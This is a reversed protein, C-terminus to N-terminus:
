KTSEDGAATGHTPGAPRPIRSRSGAFYRRAQERLSLSLFAPRAQCGGGGEDRHRETPGRHRGRPFSPLFSRFCGPPPEGSSARSGKRAPELVQPTPTGLLWHPLSKKSRKKKTFKKEKQHLTLSSISLTKALVVRRRPQTARARQDKLLQYHILIMLDTRTKGSWFDLPGPEWPSSWIGHHSGWM